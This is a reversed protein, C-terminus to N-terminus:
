KKMNNFNYIEQIRLDFTVRLDLSDHELVTAINATVKRLILREVLTYRQAVDPKRLVTIHVSWPM